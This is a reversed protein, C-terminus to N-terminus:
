RFMEDSDSTLAVSFEQRCRLNQNQIYNAVSGSLDIDTLYYM